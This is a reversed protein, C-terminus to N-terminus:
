ETIIKLEFNPLNGENNFRFVELNVNKIFDLSKLINVWENVMLSKRCNGKIILVDKEFGALSDPEEDKNLPPSFILETLVVEKPITKAIKDAYKAVPNLDSVGAKDLLGKKKEYSNLLENIIEHKGEYVELEGQLEKSTNFYHSFAFFNLLCLFFTLGVLCYSLLKIKQKELHTQKYTLIQHNFHINQQTLYLFAGAFSLLNQRSINIGAVNLHHNEITDNSVMEIADICNNNINIKYCASQLSTNSPLLSTIGILAAPGILVEALDFKNKEFDGTLKQIQVNRIISCVVSNNTQVYSQCFFEPASFAPLNQSLFDERLLETENNIKLRRTIIGKGTLIIVLPIKNKVIHQPLDSLAHCTGAESLTIQENKTKLITYHYIISEDTLVLELGCVSSNLLWKESIWKNLLM